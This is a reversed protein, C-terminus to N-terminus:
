NITLQPIGEENLEGGTAAAGQRYATFCIKRNSAYKNGPDNIIAVHAFTGFEKGEWLLTKKTGLEPKNLVDVYINRGGHAGPKAYLVTCEINGNCPQACGLLMAPAACLLVRLTKGLYDSRNRM